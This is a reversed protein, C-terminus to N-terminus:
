SALEVSQLRDLLLAYKLAPAGRPVREGREWRAVTSQDAGVSRAVDAQSLRACERIQRAKGSFTIGRLWSLREASTIAM